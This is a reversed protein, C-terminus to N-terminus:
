PGHMSHVPLIKRREFRLGLVLYCAGGKAPVTDGSHSAQCCWHSHTFCKVPVSPASRSLNGEYTLCSVCGLISGSLSAEVGALALGDCITSLVMEDRRAEAPSLSFARHETTVWIGLRSKKRCLYQRKEWPLAQQSM